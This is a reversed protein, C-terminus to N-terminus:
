RRCASRRDGIVEVATGGQGFLVVPGFVPDEAVGVILEQARPRRVMRQVTFGDIRAGPAAARGAGADGRRSGCAPPTRWTSRSAASM